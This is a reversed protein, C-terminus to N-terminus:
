RATLEREVEVLLEHARGTPIGMHQAVRHLHLEEERTVTRDRLAMRVAARFADEKAADPQPPRADHRSELAREIPRAAFVLAGSVVGGMILSYRASLFNQAVQAVILLVVLFMTTATGRRTTAPRFATDLADLGFIAYAVFGLGVIRAIGYAGVDLGARAGAATALVLMAGLLSLGLAVSGARAGPRRGAAIAWALACSGALAVSVAVGVERWPSANTALGLPTVAHAVLVIPWASLGLTLIARKSAGAHGAAAARAELTALLTTLVGFAFFAIFYLGGWPTNSATSEIVGLAGGDTGAHILIATITAGLPACIAVWRTGHWFRMLLLTAATALAMGVGGAVDNVVLLRADTTQFNTGSGMVGVGALMLGVYRAAPSRWRSLALALGFVLFLVGSATRVGDGLTLTLAM